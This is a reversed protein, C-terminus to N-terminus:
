ISVIFLFFAMKFNIFSLHLNLMQVEGELDEGWMAISRVTDFITMIVIHINNVASGILIIIIYGKGMSYGEDRHSM